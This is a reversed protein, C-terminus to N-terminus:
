ATVCVVGGGGRQARRTWGDPAEMDVARLDAAAAVDAVVVARRRDGSANARSARATIGTRRWSPAPRAAPRVAAAVRFSRGVIRLSISVSSTRAMNDPLKGAADSLAM